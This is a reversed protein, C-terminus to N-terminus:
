LKDKLFTGLQTDVNRIHGNLWEVVTRNTLIIINLGPGEKEFTAKLEAIKKIFFTHQTKQENYKPAPYTYRQMLAEEDRFHTIVYEELFALAEGIVQRGKGQNCAELLQDIRRYLEKHQDDIQTVGVALNPTWQIAM